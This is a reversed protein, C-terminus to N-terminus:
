GGKANSLETEMEHNKVAEEAAQQQLIQTNISNIVPASVRYPLNILAESIVSLQQHDLELIVSEM